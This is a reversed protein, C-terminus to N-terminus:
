LKRSKKRPYSSKKWHLSNRKKQLFNKKKMMMLIWFQKRQSKMILTWPGLSGKKTKKLKAKRMLRSKKYNRSRRKLSRISLTLLYRSLNMLINQTLSTWSIKQRMRQKKNWKMSSKSHIMKVKSKGSCKQSKLIPMTIVRKRPEQLFQWSLNLTWSSRAKTWTQVRKNLNMQITMQFKITM